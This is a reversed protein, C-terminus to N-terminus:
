GDSQAGVDSDKEHKPSDSARGVSSVPKDQNITIHNHTTSYDNNQLNNKVSVQKLDNTEPKIKSLSSTSCGM